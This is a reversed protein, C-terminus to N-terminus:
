PAGRLNKELTEPPLGFDVLGERIMALYDPSPPSPPQPETMQYVLMGNIELKHYLRPYDEIADLVEEAAADIEWCGGWVCHEPASEVIDAYRRFVLRYGQIKRPGIPVATPCATEMHAHNLNMGYAFYHKTKMNNLICGM